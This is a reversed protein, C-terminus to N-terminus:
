EVLLFNLMKKVETITPAALPYQDELNLVFNMVDGPAKLDDKVKFILAYIFNASQIHPNREPRDKDYLQPQVEKDRIDILKRLVLEKFAEDKPSLEDKRHQVVDSRDQESHNLHSGEDIDDVVYVRM